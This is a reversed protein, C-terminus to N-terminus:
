GSTDTVAAYIALTQKATETWCYRSVLKRAQVGMTALTEAPLKLALGLGATVSDADPSVSWGGGVTELDQWPMATTTLAPLEHALAEAVSLGFNEHLSPQLFLQSGALLLSKAEGHVPGLFKVQDAIGGQQAMLKLAAVYTAEGGGALALQWDQPSLNVWARLLLDVQKKPDLRGLFVARRLRPPKPMPLAPQDVGHPIYRLLEPSGLRSATEQQEKASTVVVAAARALLRHQYGHWALTKKLRQNSLPWNQLMGCPQSIFPCAARHAASAAAANEPLWLGHDHVLQAGWGGILDGTAMRFQRFRLWPNRLRPLRVVKAGPPPSLEPDGPRPAMFVLAVSHGQALLEAAFRTVVVSPGGSAADLDPVTLLIKM